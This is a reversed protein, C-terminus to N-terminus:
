VTSIYAVALRTTLASLARRVDLSVQRVCEMLDLCLFANLTPLLPGQTSPGFGAALPCCCRCTLILEQGAGVGTGM